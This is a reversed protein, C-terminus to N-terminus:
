SIVLIGVIEGSLMNDGRQFIGVPGSEFVFPKPPLIADNRWSARVLIKAAAATVM